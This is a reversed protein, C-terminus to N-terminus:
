LKCCKKKNVNQLKEKLNMNKAGRKGIIITRFDTIPTCKVYNLMIKQKVSQLM